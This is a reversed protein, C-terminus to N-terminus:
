EHLLKDLYTVLKDLQAKNGCGPPALELEFTREPKAARYRQRVRPKSRSM